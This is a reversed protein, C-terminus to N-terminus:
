YILPLLVVLQSALSLLTVVSLYKSLLILVKIYDKGPPNRQVCVSDTEGKTPRDSCLCSQLHARGLLNSCM